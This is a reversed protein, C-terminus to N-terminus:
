AIPAGNSESSSRRRARPPGRSRCEAATHGMRGCNTCQVRSRDTPYSRSNPRNGAKQFRRQVALLDEPSADAGLALLAEMDESTIGSDDDEREVVKAAPGGRQRPARDALDWDRGAEVQVRVWETLEAISQFEKFGDLAEKRLDKPFIRLVQGRRDEFETPSGGADLYHSCLTEWDAIGQSVQADSSVQAPTQCQNWLTYRVCDTRSNIAM